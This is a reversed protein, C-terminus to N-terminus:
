AVYGFFSERHKQWLVGHLHKSIIGTIFIFGGLIYIFNQFRYFPMKSFGLKQSSGSGRDRFESKKDASRQPPSGKAAQDKTRSGQDKIRQM